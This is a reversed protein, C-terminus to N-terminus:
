DLAKTAKAKVRLIAERSVAVVVGRSDVQCAKSPLRVAARTCSTGWGSTLASYGLRDFSRRGCSLCVYVKDSLAPRISDRGPEIEACQEM